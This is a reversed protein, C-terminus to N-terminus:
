APHQYPGAARLTDIVQELVREGATPASLALL